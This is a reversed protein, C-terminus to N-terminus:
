SKELKKRSEKSKRCKAGNETYDTFNRCFKTSNWRFKCRFNVFNPTKRQFIAVFQLIQLTFKSFNEPRLPAFSHLDQLAWFISCFAAKRAITATSVSSFSGGLTLCNSLQTLSKMTKTTMALFACCGDARQWARQYLEQSTPPINAVRATRRKSNSQLQRIANSVCAM